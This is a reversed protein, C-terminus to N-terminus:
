YQVEKQLKEMLDDYDQKEKKFKKLKNQALHRRWYKQITRASEDNKTWVPAKPQSPTDIL